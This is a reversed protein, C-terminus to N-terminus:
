DEVTKEIISISNQSTDIRAKVGIPLTLKVAGHGYAFNSIVPIDLNNIYDNIVENVTLSPKSVDKSECDILQGFILGSISSLVGSHKLSALYRDLRYPEEDIDELVLIAGKFDPMYPSGLMGHLVSFCSPILVGEAIGHKLISLKVDDPNLLKKINESNSIINWLNEATYNQIGSGFEVAVMPGSFSVLGAKHFLALNIASIDSYGIFIKPKKKVLDYDIRDLMRPTGYGGRSCFIADIDPNRFMENFDDVREDDAGALYGYQKLVNKGNVVKFGLKELYKVGQYYKKEDGPKSAPSIVGITDGKKLRSPKLVRNTSM